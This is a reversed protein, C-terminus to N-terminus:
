WCKFVRYRQTDVGGGGVCVCVSLSNSVSELVRWKQTDGWGVGGVSLSNCEGFSEVKTYRGGGWGRGGVM